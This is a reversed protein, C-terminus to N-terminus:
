MRPTKVKVKDLATQRGRLATNRMIHHSTKILLASHQARESGSPHFHSQHKILVESSELTYYRKLIVARDNLFKM